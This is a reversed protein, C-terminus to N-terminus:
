RRNSPNCSLPPSLCTVHLHDGNLALVFQKSSASIGHTEYFHNTEARALGSCLRLHDCSLSQATKLAADLLGGDIGTDPRNETIVLDDIYLTKGWCIDHVLRHCLTGVVADCDYAAVLQYGAETTANLRANFTAYDLKSCLELLIPIAPTPDKLAETRIM